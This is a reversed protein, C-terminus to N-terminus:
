EIEVLPEVGRKASFEALLFESKLHHGLLSRNGRDRLARYLLWQRTGLQIRFGIANEETVRKLDEGVTLRQGLFTETMHEPGPQIWIPVWFAQGRVRRTLELGSAIRHFTCWEGASPDSVGPLSALPLVMARRRPTSGRRSALLYGGSETETTFGTGPVVPPTVPRPPVTVWDVEEPMPLVCRYEWTVGSTTEPTV